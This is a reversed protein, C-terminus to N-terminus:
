KVRRESFFGHLIQAVPLNNTGKCGNENTAEAVKKTKM